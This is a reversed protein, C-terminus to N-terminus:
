IGMGLPLPRVARETITSVTGQYVALDPSKMALKAPNRAFARVKHGEKLALSVFHQGTQGTAGFVLFTKQPNM